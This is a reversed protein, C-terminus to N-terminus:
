VGQIVRIETVAIGRAPTEGTSPSLQDITIVVDNVPTETGGPPLTWEYTNWGSRLSQQPLEVGNIRLGAARPAGGEELLAQIRIRGADPKAIPLLLRAETRTMWRYASVQDWDVASWGDGILQSQDDRTMLLVESSRDPTRLLGMTDVRFVTAVRSPRGSLVRGIAIAPVGGFATLVSVPEGRPAGIAIRYVHTAQELRTGKVGDAELKARLAARDADHFPIIEATMRASSRDTVRPALPAGSGFYMVVASGAPVKLMTSGTDTTSLVDTWDDASLEESTWVGRLPYVSLSSSPIPVRFANVAELVAAQKLGGEPNWVAMVPGEFSRVLDRGGRRIAAETSGSLIEISSPVIV